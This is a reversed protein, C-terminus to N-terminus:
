WRPSVAADMRLINQTRTIVAPSVQGYFAALRGVQTPNLLGTERASATEAGSFSIIAARPCPHTHKGRWLTCRSAM